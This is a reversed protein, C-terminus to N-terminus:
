GRQASGANDLVGNVARRWGFLRRERADGAMAPAFESVNGRMTGATELTGFWGAGVGALMAAGLATTETFGPREVPIALMNALDQAMWDNEAMGGDIRLTAWDARDAAFASKLDHVQHAMSELAARILHARGTGLSMGMFAARAEPEWWPAGLGALAPVCYVGGNDPVSAALAGSEDARAILGLSDRLWQILSGAVFVSGELAYTRRGGIQWAVTGLLRHRSVPPIPGANALIFAGTGFTAKAQGREFCAQGITAAQQDGALGTIPIAGGFLTVSGFSGACDVIEALAARPAGFQEVLGDDWGGSGLGMLLTRSANTADTIHVGGTLKWVLWSEVTGIALRDGAARLQPWNAMAWGIKTGSFYPDLLLGTRAQVGAEDGAERMARCQDTTRRDQWVIAPALAKGSARDWFCVTERQNTIGIAAIREAGGAVQVMAAACDRSIRWIEDADHEVWGPRPYSQTVAASQQGHCAGDRGFLMARVSTTGADIVLIYDSM